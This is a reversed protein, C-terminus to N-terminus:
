YGKEERDQRVLEESPTRAPKMEKWLHGHDPFPIKKDEMGLVLASNGIRMPGNKEVLKELEEMSKALDRKKLTKM